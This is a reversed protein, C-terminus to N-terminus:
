LEDENGLQQDEFEKEMREERIGRHYEDWEERDKAKVIKARAAKKEEATPEPVLEHEPIHLDAAIQHACKVFSAPRWMFQLWRDNNFVYKMMRELQEVTYGSDLLRRFDGAWTVKWHSPRQLSTLEKYGLKVRRPHTLKLWEGFKWALAVHADWKHAEAPPPPLEGDHVPKTSLESNQPITNQTALESTHDGNPTLLNQPISPNTSNGNGEGFGYGTGVGYGTSADRKGPSLTANADRYAPGFFEKLQDETPEVPASKFRRSPAPLHGEIWDGAWYGWTKGKAEFPMVLKVRVLEELLEQVREPTWGPRALAYAESWILDADLEFVGNDMAIPRIWAYEPRFEPPQISRIKKSKWTTDTIVRNPM